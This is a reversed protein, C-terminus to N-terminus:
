SESNKYELKKNSSINNTTEISALHERKLDKIKQTVKANIEDSAIEEDNLYRGHSIMEFTLYEQTALSENVIQVVFFLATLAVM